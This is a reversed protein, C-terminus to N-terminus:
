DAAIEWKGLAYGLNDATHLMMWEAAGKPNTKAWTANPSNPWAYSGIKNEDDLVLFGGDKQLQYRM